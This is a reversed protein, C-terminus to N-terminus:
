WNAMSGDLCWLAPANGAEFPYEKVAEEDFEIGLGPRAPPLLHGKGLPVQVPFLDSLMTGPVRPCEQVGVNDSALDLHRIAEGVAWERTSLGSEGVGYIGEDTEVKVFLYTRDAKIPFTKVKTIRM